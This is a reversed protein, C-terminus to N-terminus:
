HCDRKMSYKRKTREVGYPLLVEDVLDQISDVADYVRKRVVEFDESVTFDFVEGARTFLEVFARDNIPKKRIRVLYYANLQHKTLAYFLKKRRGKAKRIDALLKEIGAQLDSCQKAATIMSQEPEMGAGRFTRDLDTYIAELKSKLATRTELFSNPLAFWDDSGEIANPAIDAENSWQILCLALLVSNIGIAFADEELMKSLGDIDEKLCYPSVATEKLRSHFKSLEEDQLMLEVLHALRASNHFEVPYTLDTARRSKARSSPVNRNNTM